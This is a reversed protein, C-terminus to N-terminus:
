KVDDKVEDPIGQKVITPNSKFDSVVKQVLDSPYNKKAAAYLSEFSYLDDANDLKLIKAWDSPNKFPGKIVENTNAKTYGTGNKKEVPRRIVRVMGQTPSFMWREIELPRGDPTTEDSSNVDIKDIMASVMLNRHVGKYNSSRGDQSMDKSHPSHYYHKMFEIDGPMFDIQVKGTRQKGDAQKSDDYGVIDASTIFVGTKQV